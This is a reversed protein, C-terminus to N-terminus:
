QFKRHTPDIPKRAKHVWFNTAFRMSIETTIFIFYPSKGCSFFVLCIFSKKRSIKLFIVNFKWASHRLLKLAFTMTYTSFDQAAFVLIRLQSCWFGSNRVGFDQTAFASVGLCKFQFSLNYYMHSCSNGNLEASPIRLLVRLQWYTSSVRCAMAPQHHQHKHAHYKSIWRKCCTCFVQPM